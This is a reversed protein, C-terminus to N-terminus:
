EFCYGASSVIVTTFFFHDSVLSVHSIASIARSDVTISARAM